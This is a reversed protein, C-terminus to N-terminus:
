IISINKISDTIHRAKVICDDFRKDSRLNELFHDYKTLFPINTIGYTIARDLFHFAKDKENLNAYGDAMIMSWIDDWWVAEELSDSVVDLADKKNNMLSSKFFRGLENLTGKSDNNVIPDILRISEDMNKNMGHIWALMILFPSNVKELVTQWEKFENISEQFKGLYFLRWGHATKIMPILPDIDIAKNMLRESETQDIDLSAYLYGLVLFLMSDNHNPELILAKEYCDIAKQINCSQFLSSGLAYYATASKPNLQISKQAYQISKTLIEKYTFPDKLLNNVYQLLSHSMEAHLLSNESDAQLGELLLKESSAMNFHVNEYRAKLYLDYVYTKNSGFESIRSSRKDRFKVKLSDAISQSVKEQIEFVDDLKGNYKEAWIHTDSLADILQAVIRLNNGAKRVSGELVYRVNVERAIEKIKKKTGKFTIASSRSIVLLDKLQSLDTIIEETLGDSFYEQEPDSSMNEFPLVIISKKDPMQENDMLVIPVSQSSIAYVMVPDSINKLTKEGVLETFIDKKNRINKYVSDSIFTCGEGALEELRSAVNVGDGLVDGGEFVVEGEHIGIRLPICAKKAENQIEGACRVADSATNFSALIGDGMEKLWEGRYKKIIPRQIERNKRLIKFARDEDRGMLATYGVIDTFMIAALRRDEPM